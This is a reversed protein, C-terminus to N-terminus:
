LHMNLTIFGHACISFCFYDQHFHFITLHNVSNIIHTQVSEKRLTCYAQTIHLFSSTRDFPSLSLSCWFLRAHLLPRPRLANPPARSMVSLPWIIGWLRDGFHFRTKSMRASVLKVVLKVKWCPYIRWLCLSVWALTTKYCLPLNIHNNWPQQQYGLINNIILWFEYM